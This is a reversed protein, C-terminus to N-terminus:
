SRKRTALFVAILGVVVGAIGVYLARQAQTQTDTATQQAQKISADTSSESVVKTVSFPGSNGGEEDHGGESAQDWSVVTGDAYTQYAKWQLETPQDPVQASFGFDDRFGPAIAGTWTIATVTASEGSGTKDVSIKWGAKQNPTVYALGQPITLKLSVTPIDKENPVGVVFSQFGATPVEAPKVVVHAAANATMLGMLLGVSAALTALKRTISKAM